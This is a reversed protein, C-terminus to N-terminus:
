IRADVGLVEFALEVLRGPVLEEGVDGRGVQGLVCFGERDRGIEVVDELAVFLLDGVSPRGQPIANPVGRWGAHRLSSYPDVPRLREAHIRSRRRRRSWTSFHRIMLRDWRWSARSNIVGPRARM